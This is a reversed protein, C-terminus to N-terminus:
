EWWVLGFEIMEFQLVTLFICPYIITIHSNSVVEHLSQIFECSFYMTGIILIIYHPIM